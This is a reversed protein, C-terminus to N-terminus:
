ISHDRLEAPYLLPKRFRLDPTRIGEPGGAALNAGRDSLAISVDVFFIGTPITQDGSAEKKAVDRRLGSDAGDTWCSVTLERYNSRTSLVGMSMLRSLSAFPQNSFATNAFRTPAAAERTSM